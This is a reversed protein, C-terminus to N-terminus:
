SRMGHGPGISAEGRWPHGAVYDWDIEIGLGPGCPVDVKGDKIRLPQLAMKTMLENYTVDWEFMAPHPSAAVLHLNAVATLIDNFTHPNWDLHSFAAAEAIGRVETFGGARSVDAQLVDLAGQRIFEAFSFRTYLNEGSAIRVKRRAQRLIRHGEIDEVSMPEEFWYAGIEELAPLLGMAGSRDLSQNADVLIEMELGVAQRIAKLREVDRRPERGVKLKIATYGEEGYGLAEEAAQQPTLDWYISSAYARIGGTHYRGGLLEYLPVKLARARLDWLAMDIGSLAAIGIGRTGVNRALEGHFIRHWVNTVNSTDAGILHPKLVEILRQLLPLDYPGSPSGYGTIGEDTKIEILCMQRALKFGAGSEVRFREPIPAHVLHTKVETVKM